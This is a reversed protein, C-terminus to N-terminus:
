NLEGLGESLIYWALAAVGPVQANGTTRVRDVRNSGGDDMGAFRPIDWWNTIRAFPTEKRESGGAGRSQERLPEGNADTSHWEEVGGFIESKVNPKATETRRSDDRANGRERYSDSSQEVVGKVKSSGEMKADVPEVREGGRYANSAVVWMRKRWHNAGVHRAGLVGWRADYGLRALGALVIGIGKTRLEKANEAFVFTPRVEEIIRLMEFFLKSNEGTIGQGKGACSIDTCPFGGTIVDVHGRFPRGDFTRIDDWIPFGPLCGDKQRQLLVNICYPDNEVACVTTWGLLHGGLIGGGVGAFLALERLGEEKIGM